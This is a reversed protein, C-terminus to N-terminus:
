QDFWSEIIICDNVKTHVWSGIDIVLWVLHEPVSCKSMKKSSGSHSKFRSIYAVVVVQVAEGASFRKRFAMWNWFSWCCSHHRDLSPKWYSTLTSLSYRTGHIRSCNSSPLKWQGYGHSHRPHPHPPIFFNHVSPPKFSVSYRQWAKLKLNTISGQMLFAHICVKLEM